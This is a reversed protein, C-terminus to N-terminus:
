IHILSLFQCPSSVEGEVGEFNFYGVAARVRMDDRPTWDLGLQAALLYKDKSEFPGGKGEPANRSGFNFDTNFIPFAGATGFVALEPNLARRAALAAGDFNLDEDFLLESTWFPNGFRGFDLTVDQAPTLRIAARDLWLAYKGFEGNGGLTQNTSVPSSDNGTAVRVEASIWSDIQAATDASTPTGASKAVSAAPPASAAAPATSIAEEAWAGSAAALGAVATLVAFLPIRTM